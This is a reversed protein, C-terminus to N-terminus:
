MPSEGTSDEYTALTNKINSKIIVSTAHKNTPVYSQLQIREPCFDLRDGTELESINIHFGYLIGVM